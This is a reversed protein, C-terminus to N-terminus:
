HISNMLDENASFSGNEKNKKKPSKKELTAKLGYPDQQSM